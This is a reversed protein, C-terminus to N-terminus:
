AACWIPSGTACNTIPREVRFRIRYYGLCSLSEGLGLSMTEPCSWEDLVPDHIQFPGDIAVNGTNTVTLNYVVLQWYQTYTTPPASKELMLGPLPELVVEFDDSATADHDANAVATNRIAMAEVDAITTTYTGSCEMTEGPELGGDPCAVYVMDDRITIPGELPGTGTNRVFYSYAIEEDAWLFTAREADKLLRISYMPGSVTYSDEASVNYYDYTTGGCCGASQGSDVKFMGEVRADNTLSGREIDAQTIVYTGTCTMQVNVAIESSPCVVDVLNDEVSVSYLPYSAANRVVYAYAIEDGVRAYETPSGSVTLNIYRDWLPRAQSGLIWIGGFMAALVVGSFLFIRLPRAKVM